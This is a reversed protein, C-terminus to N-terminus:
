QIFDLLSPQIIKSGALLAAQYLNEQTALDSVLKTLDADEVESLLKTVNVETAEHRNLTTEMRQMKAGVSARSSLLDQMAKDLNGNIAEATERDNERLANVLMMLSGLMDPSGKIGLMKATDTSGESEVILTRDNDQPVIQIGTEAENISATINLGSSNIASIVDAITANPPLAGSSLDVYAIQDGHSIKLRGLDFGAKHNLTSLETTLLLRPKLDSGVRDSRIEGAIGLDSLTTQAGIDVADFDPKPRLDSGELNPSLSGLLGLDGATTSEQAIMDEVTLGLPVGNTDELRLGTGAANFTVNIGNVPPVHAALADSIATRIEGINTAGSIDVEVSISSDANRILFKGPQNDIGVGDNLNVLPTDDSIHGSGGAVWELAAGSDAIKVSLTSGALNLQGNIRDVVESITVPAAAPNGAADLNLDITYSTNLNNDQITFTGPVLEVGDGSNIDALQVAGTLGIGLDGNEGLVSLPAFFVNKGILNSQVRASLEIELDIAGEDGMYVVGNTSAELPQTRTRFGSYMYRGDVKTNGLQLVQQFLSEVENAAAERAVDDYTDNAMMISIEKASSYLNNLDGLGSEYTALWGNAQSINSKYQTIEDLRTRYNLDHQTGIPDDSPTNIRRGTSMMTELRMFRSLASSLNFITRDSIMQNTVRM